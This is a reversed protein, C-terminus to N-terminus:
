AEVGPAGAGDDPTPQASRKASSASVDNAGLLDEKDLLEDQRILAARLKDGSAGATDKIRRLGALDRLGDADLFDYARIITPKAPVEARKLPTVTDLQAVLATDRDDVVIHGGGAELADGLNLTVGNENANISGGAFDSADARLAFAILSM